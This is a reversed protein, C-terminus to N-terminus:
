LVGLVYYLLKRPNCEGITGLMDPFTVKIDKIVEVVRPKAIELSIHAINKRHLSLPPFATM